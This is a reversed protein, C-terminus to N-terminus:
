AALTVHEFQDPSRYNLFSPKRRCNYFTEIYKFIETRAQEYTDFSMLYIYEKKITAFFSEAVANDFGGGKRSM